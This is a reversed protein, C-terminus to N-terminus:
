AKFTSDSRTNAVRNVIKKKHSVSLISGKGREGILNTDTLSWDARSKGKKQRILLTIYM